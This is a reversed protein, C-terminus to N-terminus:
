RSLTLALTISSAILLRYGMLLACQSASYLTFASSATAFADSGMADPLPPSAPTIEKIEEEEEDEVKKEEEEEEEEWELLRVLMSLHWFEM